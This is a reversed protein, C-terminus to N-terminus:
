KITTLAIHLRVIEKEDNKEIAILLQQNLDDIKKKKKQYASEDRKKRYADFSKSILQGANKVLWSLITPLLTKLLNTLFTM